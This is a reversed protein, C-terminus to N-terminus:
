LPQPIEIWKEQSYIWNVLRDITDLTSSKNKLSCQWVVAIRWGNNFLQNYKRQDRERNSNMKDRWFEIRTSPLHSKICNTHGHWFCGHIFVVASYKPLIVDPSGPLSKSYKRFRFGNKHLFSRVTQEIKTNKGRVRSMLLSRQKPDLLDPM